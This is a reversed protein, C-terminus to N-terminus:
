RPALPFIPVFSTVVRGDHEFTVRKLDVDYLERLHTETLIEDVAGCRYTETGTM